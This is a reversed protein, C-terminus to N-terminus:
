IYIPLSETPTPKGKPPEVGTAVATRKAGRKRPRSMVQSTPAGNFPALSGLMGTVVVTPHDLRVRKPGVEQAILATSAAMVALLTTVGPVTPLLSRRCGMSTRLPSRSATPMTAVGHPGPRPCRRNIPSATAF